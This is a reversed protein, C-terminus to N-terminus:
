VEPISRQKSGVSPYKKFARSIAEKLHRHTKDSPDIVTQLHASWVTRGAKDIATLDVAGEHYPWAREGAHELRRAAAYSFTLDPNKDSPILGRRDLEARVDTELDRGVGTPDGTNGSESIYVQGPLLSYTKYQELRIGEVLKTSVDPTTACGSLSMVLLTVSLLRYTIM